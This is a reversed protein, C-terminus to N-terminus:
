SVMLTFNFEAYTTTNTGGTKKVMVFILDGASISVSTAAIDTNYSTGATFAGTTMSGLLTLAINSTSGNPRPAKYLRVECDTGDGNIRTISGFLNINTADVPCIIGNIHDDDVTSTLSSPQATWVIYNWGYTDNGFFFADNTNLRAQTSTSAIVVSGGSSPTQFSLTGAGNTQLVQGSTGDSTPFTYGGVELGTGNILKLDTSTLRAGINNAGAKRLAFEILGDETTDTDDSIKGTIKAYVVEQDADNEGKFKLQGLYDGNSPSSSNRKLTIVPAADSSDETTTILLSDGTTTNTLSLTGAVDVTGTIDIDGTGTISNSNMDLTGGLQPTTDEVVNQLATAGSAAGSIITSAATGNLSGLNTINNSQADLNGGLQPTTDEVVNSIGGGAAAELSIKGTTNDYTLVYDDQGAGVSQDVDFTFSGLVVDGTGNPNLEINGNSTSVIENGNVDLDGGLQPTTDEVVNELENGTAETISNFSLAGAGNTALVQKNSGDTTPLTYASEVTNTASGIFFKGTPLNPVDNSRGIAMVVIEGNNQQRRSVKGVNQILNTGTPKTSTLGGGAKVYLVDGEQFDNPSVQTNVDDLNGITIVQGNDNLSYDAFALGISPMKSSDSADAKAVTIRNQGSNFGTVYLPDGKTVAEDFRVALTVRDAYDWETDYDTGSAKRLVQFETGGAPVGVGDAGAAGTEGTPGAPGTLGAIPAANIFISASQTVSVGQNIASVNVVSATQTPLSISTGNNITVTIAM